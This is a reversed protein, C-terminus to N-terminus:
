AEVRKWKWGRETRVLGYRREAEEALGLLGRSTGEEEFLVVGDKIIEIFFTDGGRIRTEVESLTKVLPHVMGQSFRYVELWDFDGKAVSGFLLVLKPKLAKVGEM